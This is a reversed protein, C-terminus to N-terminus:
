KWARSSVSIRSRFADVLLSGAFGALAGGGLGAALALLPDAALRADLVPISWGLATVGLEVSSRALLAVVALAAGTVAAFGAALVAARRLPGGPRRGTRVAVVIGCALLAVVPVWTLSGGPSLPAVGDLACSLPGDSSVTWPVGLGLLLVGAVVQPLVLLVGGAAPAGGFVGAVLLCGATLVGSVTATARLGTAVPPFRVALACAGAVVLVWVAAAAVTPLLGVSFGADVAGGFRSGAGTGLGCASGGGAGGGPLRLTLNGKTLLSVATLGAPIAVAASAARVPLGDRGRRLLLAGLVVAGALSVGLPMVDIAGRVTVPLGGAPVADVAASGGVALAVVAATLAGPEGFRGADLLLLGALAVGAMVLLAAAAAAVGRGVDRM